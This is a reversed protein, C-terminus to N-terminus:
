SRNLYASPRPIKKTERLEYRWSVVQKSDIPVAGSHHQPYRIDYEKLKSVVVKVAEQQKLTCQMLLELCAGAAAKIAASSAEKPRGKTRGRKFILDPLNGRMVDRLARLLMHLSRAGEGGINPHQEVFLTVALLCHCCVGLQDGGDRVAEECKALFNALALWNPQWNPLGQQSGAADHSHDNPAGRRHLTREAM